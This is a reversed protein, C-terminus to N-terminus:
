AEVRQSMEVARQTQQTTCYLIELRVPKELQLLSPQSWLFYRCWRHYLRKKKSHFSLQSTHKHVLHVKRTDRQFRSDGTQEDTWKKIAEKLCDNVLDSKIYNTKIPTVVSDEGQQIAKAVLFLVQFMKNEWIGLLCPFFRVDHALNKTSGVERTATLDWKRGLYKLNELIGCRIKNLDQIRFIGKWVRYLQMQASSFQVTNM